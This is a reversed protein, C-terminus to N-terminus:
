ARAVEEVAEKAGERAAERMVDIRTVYEPAEGSIYEAWTLNMEQRKQNHEDFDDAPIRLSKWDTMRM